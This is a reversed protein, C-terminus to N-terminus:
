HESIAKKVERYSKKKDGNKDFLLPRDTYKENYDQFHNIWSEGDRVGWVSLNTIGNELCTQFIDRYCKAQKEDMNEPAEGKQYAVDMETLRVELGLEQFREITEAVQSPPAKIGIFHMQLGIGDIPVGKDLLDSLLQYVGERKVDDYPLGYENYFLKANSYKSAWRFAKEIYDEALTELWLNERLEGDDNIGENIVTWADIRGSYRSVVTKIHNELIEELEESSFDGNELWKPNEMHWVLPIGTVTMDNDEAFDILADPKEFDFQDKEPHIYKWSLCSEPTILNFEKAILDRYGEDDKWVSYDVCTGIQLGRDDAIERLSSM